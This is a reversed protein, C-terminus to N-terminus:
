EDDEEKEEVPICPKHCKDCVHIRRITKSIWDESKYTARCCDSVRKKKIM